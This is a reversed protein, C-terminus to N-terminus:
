VMTDISDLIVRLNLRWAAKGGKPLLLNQLIFQRLGMDPIRKALEVDAERQTTIRDLPLAAMAQGAQPTTHSTNSEVQKRLCMCVCVCARARQPIGERFLRLPQLVGSSSLMAIIGRRFIFVCVCVCRARARSRVDLAQVLPEYAVPAIDVAVLKSVLQPYLLAFGMAARGGLSHGILTCTKMGQSEMFQRVDEAMADFEMSPTHESKGHNRLDLAYLPRDQACSLSLLRMIGRFNSSSGYLGHIFVIPDTQTPPPSTSSRSPPSSAATPQGKDYRIHHLRVPPFKTASDSAVGRLMSLLHARQRARPGVMVGRTIPLQMGEGLMGVARMSRVVAAM